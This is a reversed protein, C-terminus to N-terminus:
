GVAGQAVAHFTNLQSAALAPALFDALISACDGSGTHHSTSSIAAATPQQYSGALHDEAPTGTFSCLDELVFPATFENGPSGPFSDNGSSTIVLADNGTPTIPGVTPNQTTVASTTKQDLAIIGGDTHSWEQIIYSRFGGGNFNASVTCAESVTARAWWIAYVQSVSLDAREGVQAWTNHGTLDTASMGTLTSGLYALLLNNAVVNSPFALSTSPAGDAHTSQRKTWAM